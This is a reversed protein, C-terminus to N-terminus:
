QEFVVSSFPGLSLTGDKAASYEGNSVLCKTLKYDTFVAKAPTNRFNHVVLVTQDEYTMTWVALEDSNCSVEAMEGLSLAKNTNRARAFRRYVVQYM